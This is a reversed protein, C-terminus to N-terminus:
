YVAVHVDPTTGAQPIDGAVYVFTNGTLTFNIGGGMMRRGNKYLNFAGTPVTPVTFTDNSGNIVGTPIYEQQTGGGGGGGGGGSVVSGGLAFVDAGDCYLAVISNPVAVSAGAGGTVQVIINHGGTTGNRVIIARNSAPLNVFRDATLAGTFQLVGGSAAQIQSLTIDADGMAFAVQANIASDLFDFAENATLEKQTQASAIHSILLYPTSGATSV